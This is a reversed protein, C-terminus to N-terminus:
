AGQKIQQAGLAPTVMLGIMYVYTCIYMCIYMCVYIM